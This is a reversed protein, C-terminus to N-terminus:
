IGAAYNRRHRLISKAIRVYDPKLWWCGSIITEPHELKRKVCKKCFYSPEPPEIDTCSGYYTGHDYPQCFKGCEECQIQNM